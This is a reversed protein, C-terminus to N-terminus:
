AGLYSDLWLTRTRGSGTEAYIVPFFSEDLEVSGFQRYKGYIYSTKGWPTKCDAVADARWKVDGRLYHGVLARRHQTTSRNPGSGHWTDQHHLVAHGLPCQVAANSLSADCSLLEPPLSSRYTNADASHFAATQSSSASTDSAGGGGGGGGGSQQLHVPLTVRHSGPIYELCGNEKTTDDLAMWVTVSNDEYPEFQVSIYASDQHFGVTTDYSAAVSSDIPPKWIVDDQGIRVSSWGMIQCVMAGMSESLIVSAITCDSKYTNCQERTVTPKSLGERWHWEDPYIGTEFDGRFLLPFRDRIQRVKDLSLVPHSTMAYGADQITKGLINCEEPSPPLISSSSLCRVASKKLCSARKISQSFMAIIVRQSHDDQTRLRM